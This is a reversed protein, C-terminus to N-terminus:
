MFRGGILLGLMVLFLRCGWLFGTQPSTVAKYLAIAGPVLLLILAPGWLAPASGLLANLAIRVAIAGVLWVVGEQVGLSATGPTSIPAAGRGGSSSASAFGLLQGLIAGSRLLQEVVSPSKPRQRGKSRARGQPSRGPASRHRLMDAMEAKYLDVTRSTLVFQGSAERQIQPVAAADYQFGPMSLEVSPPLDHDFVLTKLEHEARDALAKLELLANEQAMSLQNIQEVQAELRQVLEARHREVQQQAQQQAQQVQQQAQRQAYLLASEGSPAARYASTPDSPPIYPQQWQQVYHSTRQDLVKVQSALDPKGQQQVSAGSPAPRTSGVSPSPHPSREGPLPQHPTLEVMSAPNPAMSPTSQGGGIAQLKEQLEQIRVQSQKM